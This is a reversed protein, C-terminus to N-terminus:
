SIYRWHTPPAFSQHTVTTIGTTKEEWELEGGSNPIFRALCTNEGDEGERKTKLWVVLPIPRPGNVPFWEVEYIEPSADVKNGPDGATDRTEAGMDRGSHEGGSNRLIGAIDIPLGEVGESVGPTNRKVSEEDKENMRRIASIAIGLAFNMLDASELIVEIESGRDIAEQLEAVERKLLQMLTPVPCSGLDGKHANIRLKYRQADGILKMYKDYDPFEIPELKNETM